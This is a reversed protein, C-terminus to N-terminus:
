QEFKEIWRDYEDPGPGKPKSWGALIRARNKYYWKLQIYHWM